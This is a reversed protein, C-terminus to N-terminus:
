KGGNRIGERCVEAAEEEPLCELRGVPVREVIQSLTDYLGDCLRGDQRIVACGPFLAVFANVEKLPTFRNFPAQVLKVMGGVPFCLNKYCPTKGSWPTGYAVVKGGEVRVTPNDDNLLDTGEFHKMWLASHTSKGTGSKGLFLYAYGEQYVTSAHLSIAGQLLVAQSYVIRLLSTCVCSVYPDEWQIYAVASTFDRSTKMVHQPSQATYHMGIRYGEKERWLSVHGLDNFSEELLATKEDKGPVPGSVAQWRFLLKGGKDTECRFPLFSPLLREIDTEAPVSVSFVFGAVCFLWETSMENTGKSLGYNDM